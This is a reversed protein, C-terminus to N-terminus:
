LFSRSPRVHRLIEFAVQPCIANGISDIRGVRNPIGHAVRQFSPESEWRGVPLKGLSLGGQSVHRHPQPRGKEEKGNRAYGELGESNAHAVIWVRKREHPAGVARAPIVDWWVDFGSRYFDCLIENFARGGDVTLIGRPNEFLGWEPRVERMIRVTDPWLWRVDSRGRRKGIQSAPQCPVGGTILDVSGYEALFQDTRLKTVDGLNPIRPFRRKLVQCAFPKIECFAITHYGAWQAAITFGGIGSYLDLHNM